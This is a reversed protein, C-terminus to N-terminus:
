NKLESHDESDNLQVNKYGKQELLYKVELEAMKGTNFDGGFDPIDYNSM